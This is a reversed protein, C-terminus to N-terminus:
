VNGEGDAPLTTASRRANYPSHQGMYEVFRSVDVHEEEVFHGIARRFDPHEIWHSSYTPTPLLGRSMKYEGQAGAEFRKLGLKICREITQYYCMEFHLAPHFEACGWNRGFMVNSGKLCLAGAVYTGDRAAMVLSVSEPLTQGIEEFFGATLYPMGWKKDYTACYFEYFAQWQDASIDHGDYIGIELGAGAAQRRERKVQKRKKSTLSDLFDDFDRFDQNEWHYQCGTRSLLDCEGLAAQDREDTFLWHVSSAKLQQAAQRAGAILNLRIEAAQPGEACLLRPGSVPTFPVAVVLKPFYKHGYRNYADAWAWDFVYEGYSHSKLYMPSAGVLAEDEYLLLHRPEWGSGAGVCSNRELARLFEYRLFPNDAGVLANWSDAKINALSDVVNCHMDNGTAGVAGAHILRTRRSIERRRFGGHL